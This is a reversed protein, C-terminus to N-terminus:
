EPLPSIPVYKFKHLSTDGNIITHLIKYEGLFTGNVPFQRFHINPYATDFRYFNAGGIFTKHHSLLYPFTYSSYMEISPYGNIFTYDTFPRGTTNANSFRITGAAKNQDTVYTGVPMMPIDPREGPAPLVGQAHTIINSGAAIDGTFPPTGAVYYDSWLSLSMGEYIGQALNRLYITDHGIKQIFGVPYTAANLYTFQDLYHM